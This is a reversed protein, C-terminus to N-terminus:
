QWGSVADKAEDNVPVASLGSNGLMVEYVANNRMPMYTASGFQSDLMPLGIRQDLAWFDVVSDGSLSHVSPQRSRADETSQYRGSLREFQFAPQLGLMKLAGSFRMVRADVQWQDGELDYVQRGEPIADSVLSISWQQPGAQRVTVTAVTEMRAMNYYSRLDWALLLLAVGVAILAMALTGKLWALFWRPRIFFLLGLLVLAGAVIFLLLSASGFDM